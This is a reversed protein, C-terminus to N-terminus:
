EGSQIQKTDCVYFFPMAVTATTTQGRRFPQWDFFSSFVVLMVSKLLALCRQRM